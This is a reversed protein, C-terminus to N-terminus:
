ISVATSCIDIRRRACAMCFVFLSFLENSAYVFKEARTAIGNQWQAGGPVGISAHEWGYCVLPRWRRGWCSWPDPDRSGDDDVLNREVLWEMHDVDSLGFDFLDSLSQMIAYTQDSAYARHARDMPSTSQSVMRADGQGSGTMARELSMDDFDDQQRAVPLVEVHGRHSMFSAM